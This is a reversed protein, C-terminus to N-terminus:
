RGLTRSLGLHHRKHSTKSAQYQGYWRDEDAEDSLADYWAVVGFAMEGDLLSGGDKGLDKAIEGVAGDHKETETRNSGADHRRAIARNEAGTGHESMVDVLAEDSSRYTYHVEIRM